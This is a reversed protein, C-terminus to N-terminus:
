DVFYSTHSENKRCVGPWQRGPEGEQSGSLLMRFDCAM